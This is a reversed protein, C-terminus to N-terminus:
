NVRFGAVRSGAASGWVTWLTGTATDWGLTHVDNGIMRSAALHLTDASDLRLVWIRGSGACGILGSTSNLDCQDVDPPMATQSLKKGEMSYVSIAGNKGGVIVVRAKADLMLPHDSRLEPTRVTRIIQLTDPDIVVFEALAPLNQYVRHTLPDVALYEHDDGPTTISAVLKMRKADIVFIRKGSDEDAYIRNRPADYAIADVPGPVDASGLISGSVSDVRSVSDDTGNGTFVNGTTQDVAVGHVPGVKIQRLVAGTKADVVLLRQSSGHAAYVRGRAADVAVYDFRGYEPVTHATTTPVIIM